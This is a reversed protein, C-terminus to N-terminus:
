FYTVTCITKGALKKALLSFVFDFGPTVVVFFIFYVLTLVFTFGGCCLSDHVLFVFSFLM